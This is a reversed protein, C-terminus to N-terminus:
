GDRDEDGSAGADLTFASRLGSLEILRRLAPSPRVLRLRGGQSVLRESQRVLVRLVASDVFTVGSVDVAADASASLAGLAREVTETAYADLEGALALTGDANEAVTVRQVMGGNQESATAVGVDDDVAETTRRPGGVGGSCRTWWDHGRGYGRPPRSICRITHSRHARSAPHDTQPPTSM